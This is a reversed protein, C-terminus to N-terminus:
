NVIELKSQSSPKEKILFRAHPGLSGLAEKIRYLDRKDTIVFDINRKSYGETLIRGVLWARGYLNRIGKLMKIVVRVDIKLGLLDVAAKQKQVKTTSNM